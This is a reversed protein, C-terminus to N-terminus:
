KSRVIFDDFLVRSTSCFVGLFGGPAGTLPVDKGVVLGDLSVGYTKGTVSVALTHVQGDATNRVPLGGQYQFINQDDFYGWQLFAGKGTFSVMQAGKKDGNLPANFILGGGMDGELYRAKVEMTFNSSVPRIYYSFLDFKGLDNQRYGGDLFEWTGAVPKWFPSAANADSFNLTASLPGSAAITAALISSPPPAVTAKTSASPSAVAKPAATPTPLPAPAQTPAPHLGEALAQDYAIGNLSVQYKTPDKVDAARVSITLQDFTMREYNFFEVSFAITENPPVATLRGGFTQVIYILWNRTGQYSPQNRASNPGRVLDLTIFAGVGPVYGGMSREAESDNLSPLISRVQSQAPHAEPFASVSNARAQLTLGGGILALLLIIWVITWIRSIKM